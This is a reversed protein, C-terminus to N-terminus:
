NLASWVWSVAHRINFSNEFLVSRLLVIVVPRFQLTVSRVSGLVPWTRPSMPQKAAKAKQLMDAPGVRCSPCGYTGSHGTRGLHRAVLSKPHHVDLERDGLTQWASHFRRCAEIGDECSKISKGPGNWGSMSCLHWLQRNCICLGSHSAHNGHDTCGAAYLWHTTGSTTLRPRRQDICTGDPMVADMQLVLSVVVSGDGVDLLWLCSLSLAM